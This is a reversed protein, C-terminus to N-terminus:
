PGYPSDRLAEKISEVLEMDLQPRTTQIVIQTVLPDEQEPTVILDSSWLPLTSDFARIFTICDDPKSLLRAIYEKDTERFKLEFGMKQCRQELIQVWTFSSYEGLVTLKRFDDNCLYGRRGVESDKNVLPVFSYSCLKANPLDPLPDLEASLFRYDYGGELLIKALRNEPERIM